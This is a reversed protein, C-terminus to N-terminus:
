VVWGVLHGGFGCIAYAKPQEQVEVDIFFRGVVCRRYPEAFEMDVHFVYNSELENATSNHYDYIPIPKYPV